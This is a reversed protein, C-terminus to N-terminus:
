KRHREIKMTRGVTRVPPIGVAGFGRYRIVLRSCTAKTYLITWTVESQDKPVGSTHIETFDM